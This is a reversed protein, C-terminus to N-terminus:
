ELVAPNEGLFKISGHLLQMRTDHGTVLLTLINDKIQQDTLKDEDDRKDTGRSNEMIMSEFFDQQIM